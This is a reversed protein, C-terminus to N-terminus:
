YYMSGVTAWVINGMVTISEEGTAGSAKSEDRTQRIRSERGSMFRPFVLEASLIGV